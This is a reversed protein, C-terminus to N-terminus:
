STFRIRQLWKWHVLFLVLSLIILFSSVMINKRVNHMVNNIKSEKAAEYMNEIAADDPTYSADQPLNKLTHIKFNEYSALEPREMWANLPDSKDIFANILSAIAILFTIVATLCVAYGYVQAAVHKKEM